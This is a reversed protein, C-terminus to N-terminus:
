EFYVFYGGRNPDHVVEYGQQQYWSARTISMPGSAGGTKLYSPTRELSRKDKRVDGEVYQVQGSSPDYFRATRTRQKIPTEYEKFDTQISKGYLLYNGAVNYDKVFTMVLGIVAVLGIISFVLLCSKKNKSGQSILTEDLEPYEGDNDRVENEDQLLDDDLDLKETVM